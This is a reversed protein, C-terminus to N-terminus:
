IPLAYSQVPLILMPAGVPVVQKRCRFPFQFAARVVPVSLILTSASLVPVLPAAWNFLRGVKHVNLPWHSGILIPTGVLLAPYTVQLLLILSLKIKINIWLQSQFVEELDTTHDFKQPRLTDFWYLAQFSPNSSCSEEEVQMFVHIVMLLLKLTVPLFLLTFHTELITDFFSGDILRFEGTPHDGQLCYENLNVWILKCDQFVSAYDYLGHGDGLM